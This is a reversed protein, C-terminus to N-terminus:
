DFVSACTRDGKGKMGTPKCSGQKQKGTRIGPDGWNGEERGQYGSGPSPWVRVEKIKTKKGGKGEKGEIPTVGSVGGTAGEQQLGRKVEMKL